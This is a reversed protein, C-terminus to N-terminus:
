NEKYVEFTKVAIINGDEDLVEVKWKGVWSKWMRKSSWTRFTSYKVDLKVSAMLKDKYYWNHVVYTPTKFARIKTWCYVKEITNPFRDSVEVPEKNEIRKAFKIDVVESIVDEVAFAPAFALLLAFVAKKM